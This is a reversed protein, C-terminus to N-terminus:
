LNRLIDKCNYQSAKEQEKKNILMHIVAQVSLVYITVQSELFQDM